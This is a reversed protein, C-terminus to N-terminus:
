LVGKVHYHLQYYILLSLFTNIAFINIYFSVQLRKKEKFTKFCLAVTGVVLPVLSIVNNELIEVNLLYNVSNNVKQLLKIVIKM